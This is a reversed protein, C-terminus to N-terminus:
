GQPRGKLAAILESTTTTIENALLNMLEPECAEPIHVITHKGAGTSWGLELHASRGCPMVLVCTDAWQMARFDSQFGLAATPSNLLCDRYGQPSWDQWGEDIQSWAFGNKLGFFPNRFDYVEHGESRLLAVIEPQYANRWSSAVYIRKSM